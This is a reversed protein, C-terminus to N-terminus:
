ARSFLVLLRERPRARAGPIPAPARVGRASPSVLAILGVLPEFLGPGVPGVPGFPNFAAAFAVGLDSFDPAAAVRLRLDAMSRLVLSVWIWSSSSSSPDPWYSTEVPMGKKSWM